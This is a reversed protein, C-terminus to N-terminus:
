DTNINKIKNNKNPGLLVQGSKKCTSRNNGIQMKNNRWHEAANLWGSDVSNSLKYRLILM